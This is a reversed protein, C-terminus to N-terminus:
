AIDTASASGVSMYQMTLATDRIRRRILATNFILTEVFGDRAGLMVRDNEPEATSRAPYTRADILIAKSGFSSGIMLAAGSLMMTTMTSVNETLETEVYPVHADLFKKAADPSPKGLGKLSVLHMMLKSMVADKIFGDIYYFTLEDRGVALPKKIIDFSDEVRFHRDLATVNAAYDYKLRELM